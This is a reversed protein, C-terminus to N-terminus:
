MMLVQGPQLGLAQATTKSLQDVQGVDDGSAFWPQMQVLDIAEDRSSALVAYRVLMPRGGGLRETWVAVAWATQNQENSM